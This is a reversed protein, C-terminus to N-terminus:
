LERNKQRHPNPPVPVPLSEFLGFKSSHQFATLELCASPVEFTDSRAAEVGVLRQFHVIAGTDDIAWISTIENPHQTRVNRGEPGRVALSAEAGTTMDFDVIPFHEQPESGPQERNISRAGAYFFPHPLAVLPATRKVTM